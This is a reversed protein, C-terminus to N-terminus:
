GDPGRRGPHDLLRDAPGRRHGLRGPRPRPLRRARLGGYHRLRPGARRTLLAEPGPHFNSRAGRRAASFRRAPRGVSPRMDLRVSGRESRTVDAAITSARAATTTMAPTAICVTGARMMAAQTAREDPIVEVTRIDSSIR